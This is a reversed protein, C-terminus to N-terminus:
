WAPSLVETSRGPEKYGAAVIVHRDSGDARARWVEDNGYAIERGNPSWAFANGTLGPLVVRDHKGDAGITHVGDLSWYAIRGAKGLWTADAAPSLVCALLAVVPSARRLLQVARM